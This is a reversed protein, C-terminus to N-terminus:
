FEKVGKCALSDCSLFSLIQSILNLSGTIAGTIQSIGSSLWDLGSLVTGLVGDIMDALKSVLAAITEEAACKPISPTKGILGNLLGM